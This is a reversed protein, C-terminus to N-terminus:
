RILAQYKEELVKKVKDFIEEVREDTLTEKPNQFVLHFALSKKQEGFVESQYQDFLEVMWILNDVKKITKSVVDPKIKGPVVISIDRLVPPFKAIPRYRGKIKPENLLINKLKSEQFINLLPIKLYKFARRIKYHALLAPPVNTMKLNFNEIKLRKMLRNLILEIKESLYTELLILLEKEEKPHFVNCTPRLYQQESSLPNAISIAQERPFELILLDTASVFPSTITEFLGEKDLFQKLYNELLFVPNQKGRPRTLKKSLINEYGYFRAVEEAFDEKSRLDSLRWSPPTLVIKKNEEKIKSGTRELFNLIKEKRMRLGLFDPIFDLAFEIKPNKPKQNQFDLVRSYNKPQIIERAKELAPLVMQYDLGREFRYSADTSLNQQKSTRRILVSDYIAALLVVTTTTADVGSNEGGMLGALDIIKENDTIVITENGLIREVGDLTIIKEGEKSKRVLLSFGKIKAADFAHLPQGTEWMVYNTADVVNNIARKGVAELKRTIEPISPKIEVKELVVAAFRPSLFNEEFKIQPMKIKPFSPNGTVRLKLSPNLPPSLPLELLNLKLPNELFFSLERSLGFISLLDPRNPTIELDLIENELGELAFGASDLIEATKQASPLDVFEKLWSIPYKM